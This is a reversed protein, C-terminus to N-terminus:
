LFEKLVKNQVSDALASIDETPNLFRTDGNDKNVIYFPLEGESIVLYYKSKYDCIRKIKEKTFEEVKKVADNISIM